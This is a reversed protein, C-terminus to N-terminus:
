LSSVLNMIDESSFPINFKIFFSIFERSNIQTSKKYFYENQYFKKLFIFDIGGPAFSLKLISLQSKTM